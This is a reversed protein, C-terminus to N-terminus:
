EPGPLLEWGAQPQGRAGQGWGQGKCVLLCQEVKLMIQQAPTVEAGSLLLFSMELRGKPPPACPPVPHFVPGAQQGEPGEWHWPPTWRGLAVWGQHLISLASSSAWGPPGGQEVQQHVGGGRVGM